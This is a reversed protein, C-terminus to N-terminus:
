RHRRHAEGEPESPLVQTVIEPLLSFLVSARILGPPLTLSNSGAATTFGLPIVAPWSPLRQSVRLPPTIM